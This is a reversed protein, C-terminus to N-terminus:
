SWVCRGYTPPGRRARRRAPALTEPPVDDATARAARERGPTKCPTRGEIVFTRKMRETHIKRREYLTTSRLLGNKTKELKIATKVM